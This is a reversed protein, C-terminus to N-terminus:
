VASDMIIPCLTPSSEQGGGVGHGLGGLGRGTVPLGSLTRGTTKIVHSDAPELCFDFDKKSSAKILSGPSSMGKEPSQDEDPCM